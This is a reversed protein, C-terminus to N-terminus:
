IKEGEEMRSTLYLGPEEIYDWMLYTRKEEEKDTWADDTFVILDFMREREFMM